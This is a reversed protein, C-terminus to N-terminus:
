PCPGWSLVVMVMDGVSVTGSGDVDAAVGSEGWHLVVEVMDQVDVVDDAVVDAPCPLVTTFAM